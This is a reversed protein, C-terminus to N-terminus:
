VDARATRQSGPLAIGKLKFVYKVVESVAQYLAAPIEEGVDGIKYLTRALPKNEVIPVDAEAAVERLRLANFDIGKAVVVPARMGLEYKLAVAYHTPNTVLVTADRTAKVMKSMVMERQMRKIRAKVHPDGEYKKQEEKAEQKTMKMKKELTFLNYSYDGAGIVLLLASVAWFLNRTIEGWYGWAKEM